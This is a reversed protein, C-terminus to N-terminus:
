GPRPFPHLSVSYDDNVAFSHARFEVRAKLVDSIVRVGTLPMLMILHDLPVPLKISSRTIVAAKAVVCFSIVSQGKETLQM